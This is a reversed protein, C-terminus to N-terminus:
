VVKKALTYFSTEDFNDAQEEVLFGNKGLEQAFENRSFARHSMSDNFSFDVGAMHGRYRADWQIIRPCDNLKTTTSDRIIKCMSDICEIKGNFYNTTQIRTDEYNDAFLYGNIKLAKNCSFIANKLDEDSIMHTFVRGVVFVLDFEDSYPINRLDSKFVPIDPFNIKAIEVMEDTYDVLTIELGLKKLADAIDFMGGIFLAKQSSVARSNKFIFKATKQSDLTLSYFKACVKAYNTYTDTM